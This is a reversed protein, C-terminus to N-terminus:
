RATTTETDKGSKMIKGPLAGSNSGAEVIQTGNCFVAQVGVAGSYLRQTGGPLDDVMRLPESDITEPDFIVLDAYWGPQVQGRKTLGFLRAPRDTLLHVAKEVSILKRGRLM